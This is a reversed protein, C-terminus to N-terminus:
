WSMMLERRYVSDPLFYFPQMSSPRSVQRRSYKLGMIGVLGSISSTIGLALKSAGSASAVKTLIPSALAPVTYMAALVLIGTGTYFLYRKVNSKVFVVELPSYIM